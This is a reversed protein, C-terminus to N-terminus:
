ANTKDRLKKTTKTGKEHNIISGQSQSHLQMSFREIVLNEEFDSSASLFQGMPFKMSGNETLTERKSSKLNEIQAGQM